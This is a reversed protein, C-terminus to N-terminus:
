PTRGLWRGLWLLAWLRHRHDAKGTVHQSILRELVARSMWGRSVLPGELLTERLTPLLEERLWRDIPAGFGTKRRAFVEAPLMDGFADRLLTKGKGRRLKFEVPLSLGLSIVEHDLMPSRLELSSAMSAIDAKVLLDDPLYTLMDHRQAYAPEDDYQGQEYLGCFWERPSDTHEWAAFDRALLVTLEEPSFLRRYRFYQMAPVEDLAAAFRVFRRLRSREDQPALLGAAAAALKTAMYAAGGMTEALRMARYRDYGGFAEDGGDGTLAVTVYERAAQCILYTPLASSDAFPEDYQAILRDLLASLDEEAAGVLLERHESGLHGAVAAAHPREDFEAAAFGATFTKVGGAQGAARCMLATVISSDVGGSLLAGLPVDALMRKEVARALLDRVKQVAEAHTVAAPRDPLHWYRRPEGCGREDATMFHAPPLKEIGGWISRPAPVYGLTLYFAVAAPDLESGVRPHALLAKAESAFVIRDALRVQWLPKQGLRDRALFLRGRAADYIVFAFMGELVALMDTGDRLYLEPLVETDGRSRWRVGQGSLRDRLRCFNYIEGNFAVVASGDASSMPQRSLPPDIVALRRFGIACRGDPSRFRGADDPGRHALRAAMAEAM